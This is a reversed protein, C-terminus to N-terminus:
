LRALAVPRRWWKWRAQRDLEVRVTQARGPLLLCLGDLQGARWAALLPAFWDHELRLLAERWGHVDGRGAPASLADLVLLSDAMSEAVFAAPLAAHAVGAAQALARALAQDAFLRAAPQQLAGAAPGEGWLWVSNVAPLGALERADNAPQTYLLMQIENLLRHWGLAGPGAPLLPHVDQGVASALPTSCCDFPAPLRLYWRSPTAALFQLGDAGFLDNLSAVLADAEHQQLGLVSADFLLARDRDARLHVPDARLWHGPGADPLDLALTLAAAGADGAGFLQRLWYETDGPPQASRRARGLLTSLAPLALDQSPDFGPQRAFDTDPLLVTLM